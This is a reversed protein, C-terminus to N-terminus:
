VTALRQKWQSLTRLGCRCVGVYNESGVVQKGVLMVVKWWWAGKRTRTVAVRTTAMRALLAAWTLAALVVGLAVIGPLQKIAALVSHAEVSVLARRQRRLSTCALSARTGLLQISASITDCTVEARM